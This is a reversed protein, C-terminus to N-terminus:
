AQAIRHAGFPHRARWGADTHGRRRALGRSMLSAIWAAAPALVVPDDDLV